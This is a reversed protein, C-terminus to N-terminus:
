RTVDIRDSGLVCHMVNPHPPSPSGPREEACFVPVLSGNTFERLIPSV